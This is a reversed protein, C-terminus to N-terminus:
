KGQAARHWEPINLFTHQVATVTERILEFLLQLVDFYVVLVVCDNHKESWCDRIARIDDQVLRDHALWDATIPRQIRVLNIRHKGELIFNLTKIVGPVCSDSSVRILWQNSPQNNTTFLCNLSLSLTAAAKSFSASQISWWCRLKMNAYHTKDVLANQVCVGIFDLLDDFVGKSRLQLILHNIKDKLVEININIIM